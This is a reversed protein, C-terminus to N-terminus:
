VKRVNSDAHHHYNPDDFCSTDLRVLWYLPCFAVASTVIPILGLLCWWNELEVGAFLIACGSVFRVGADLSGINTKM